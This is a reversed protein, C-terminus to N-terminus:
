GMTLCGPGTRPAVPRGHCFRSVLYEASAPISGELEFSVAAATVAWRGLVKLQYISNEASVTPRRQAGSASRFVLVGSVFDTSIFNFNVKICFHSFETEIFHM